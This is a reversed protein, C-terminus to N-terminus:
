GRRGSGKRKFKILSLDKLFYDQNNNSYSYLNMYKFIKEISCLGYIRSQSGIFGDYNDFKYPIHDCSIRITMM